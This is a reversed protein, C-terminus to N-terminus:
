VQATSPSEQRFDCELRHARYDFEVLQIKSQIQQRFSETHEVVFARIPNEWLREYDDIKKTRAHWQEHLVQEEKDLDCLKQQVFRLCDQDSARERLLTVVSTPWFPLHEPHSEIIQTGCKFYSTWLSRELELITLHHTLIAVHRMEERNFPRESSPHTHQEIMKVFNPEDM